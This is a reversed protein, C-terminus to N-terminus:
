RAAYVHAFEVRNAVNLGRFSPGTIIVQAESYQERALLDVFPQVVFNEIDDIKEGSFEGPMDIIVLGPYHCGSAVSLTLLGYHYAMLFYLTDTGGLVKNWKRRGVKIEFSNRNLVVDVGSHRWVDPRLSNIAALYANMGAELKSAALEFDTAEIAEGVIGRLIAIRKELSDLQDGLKKGTAVADGLRKIHRQREAFEGVQMDIASIDEQILGSVAQRVPALKHDITRLKEENGAILNRLASQESVLAAVLEGAEQRESGIRDREFRLRVAGLEELIPEDPLPQHCLFCDGTAALRQQVSQDCAPCHTVKLDALVHGADSARAMRELEEDLGAFYRQVEAFRAEAELLRAKLSELEQLLDARQEALDLIRAEQKADVRGVTSTLLYKRQALLGDQLVKLRSSADAVTLENVEVTLEPESLVDLALDKLAQAHQDRRGRIKEVELKLSILEGYESTFVTEAVGLFQLMAALQEPESQQDALGSWFRQQRYIHRFLIRFSLQPWTQGSMPNGKPFNVLPIALKELLMRQFDMTDCPQGGLFVKGKAGPVNWKREITLVEGSVVLVARAGTYKESIPEEPNEDDFYPHEGSDGLLFDLTQLWKTKGTNPRGVILNVGNEFNIEEIVGDALTRQLEDVKLFHNSM